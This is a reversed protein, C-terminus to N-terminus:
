SFTVAVLGTCILLLGAARRVWVVATPHRLRGAVRLALLAYATDTVAVVTTFTMVLVLSQGLRGRDAAVFPPVFAVFFVIAKPNLASVAVAAAFAARPPIAARVVDGDIAPPRSRLVGVLGLAVLYAAGGIEVSRRAHPFAQLLAGVGALSVLMAVLNGAVAGGIAAFATRRGSNVAYGVISAVGPGPLVGILVSATTFALWRRLDIM